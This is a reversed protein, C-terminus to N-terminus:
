IKSILNKKICSILLKFTHCNLLKRIIQGRYQINNWKFAKDIFISIIDIFLVNLLIKDSTQLM